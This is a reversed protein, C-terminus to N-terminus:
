WNHSKAGKHRTKSQSFQESSKEEFQASQLGYKDYFYNNISVNDFSKRFDNKEKNIQELLQKERFKSKNLAENTKNLEENTKNLEENIKEIKENRADVLYQLKSNDQKVRKLEYALDIQPDTALELNSYLESRVNSLLVRCQQQISLSAKYQQETDKIEEYRINSTYIADNLRDIMDEICSVFSM